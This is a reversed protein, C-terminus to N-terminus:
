NEYTLVELTKQMENLYERSGSMKFQALKGNSQYNFQCVGFENRNFIKLLSRVYTNAERQSNVKVNITITNKIM